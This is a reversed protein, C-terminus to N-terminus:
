SSCASSNRGVELWASAPDSRLLFSAPFYPRAPDHHSRDVAFQQGLDGIGSDLGALVEAPQALAAVTSALMALLEDDDFDRKEM